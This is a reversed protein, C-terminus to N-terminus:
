DRVIIDFCYLYRIFNRTLNKPWYTFQGNSPIHTRSTGQSSPPLVKYQLSVRDKNVRSQIVVYIVYLILCYTCYYYYYRFLSLKFNHLTPTHFLVSKPGDQRQLRSYIQSLCGGTLVQLKSAEEIIHKLHM